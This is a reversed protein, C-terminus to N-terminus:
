SRHVDIVEAMAGANSCELWAINHTNYHSRKRLVAPSRRYEAYWTTLIFWTITCFVISNSCLPYYQIIHIFHVPNGSYEHLLIRPSELVVLM